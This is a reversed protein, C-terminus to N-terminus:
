AHDIARMVHIRARDLQKSSANGTSICLLPDNIQHGM